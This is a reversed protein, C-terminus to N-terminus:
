AFVAEDIGEVLKSTLVRTRLYDLVQREKSTLLGMLDDAERVGKPTLFLRDGERQIARFRFLNDRAMEFLLGRNPVTRGWHARLTGEAVSDFVYLSLLSWRQATFMNNRGHGRRQSYGARIVRNLPRVVSSPERPDVWLVHDRGFRSQIHRVPGLNVFSRKTRLARDNWVYLKRGLTTASAFAGLETLAGPSELCLLTADVSQAIRQEVELLDLNSLLEGVYDEALRVDLRLSRGSLHVSGMEHLRAVLTKRMSQPAQMSMGAVLVDVIKADLGRALRETHM